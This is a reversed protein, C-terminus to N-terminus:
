KRDQAPPEPRPPRGTQPPGDDGLERTWELTERRSGFILALVATVGILIQLSGDVLYLALPVDSGGPSAMFMLLARLAFYVGFVLLLRRAMPAHRSRRYILWVTGALLGMILIGTLGMILVASTVGTNILEDTVEEAGSNEVAERAAAVLASPDLFSMVVNLIQHIVEGILAGLWLLVLLRVSEPLDALRSRRGGDKGPEASDPRGPGNNEPAPPNPTPPAPPTSKPPLSPLSM